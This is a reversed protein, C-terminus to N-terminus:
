STTQFSRSSSPDFNDHGTQRGTPLLLEKGLWAVAEKGRWGRRTQEMKEENGHGISVRKGGQGWNSLVLFDGVLIRGIARGGM